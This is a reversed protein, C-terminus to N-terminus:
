RPQKNSCKPASAGQHVLSSLWLEWPQIAAGLEVTCCPLSCGLGIVEIAKLCHTGNRHTGMWGPNFLQKKQIQIAWDLTGAEVLGKILTVEIYLPVVGCEM